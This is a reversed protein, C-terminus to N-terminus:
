LAVVIHATFAVPLLAGAGPGAQALQQLHLLPDEQGENGQLQRVQVSAPALILSKRLASRTAWLRLRSRQHVHLCVSLHQTRTSHVSELCLAGTILAMMITFVLALPVGRGSPCYWRTIVGMGYAEGMGDGAGRPRRAM